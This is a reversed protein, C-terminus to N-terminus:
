LIQNRYEEDALNQTIETEPLSAPKTQEIEELIQQIKAFKEKQRKRYIVFYVIIIILILLVSM